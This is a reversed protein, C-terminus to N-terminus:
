IRFDVEHGTSVDHHVHGRAAFSCRGPGDAAPCVITGEVADEEPIVYPIAALRLECCAAIYEHARGRRGTVPECTETDIFKTAISGPCLPGPAVYTKTAM